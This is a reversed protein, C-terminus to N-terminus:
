YKSLPLSGSRRTWCAHLMGLRKSSLGRASQRRPSGLRPASTAPKCFRICAYTRVHRACKLQQDCASARWRVPAASRRWACRMAHRAGLRGVGGNLPSEKPVPHAASRSSYIPRTAPAHRNGCRARCERAVDPAGLPACDRRHPLRHRRWGRARRHWRPVAAVGRSVAAFRKREAGGSAAHRPVARCPVTRRCAHCLAAAHARRRFGNCRAQM